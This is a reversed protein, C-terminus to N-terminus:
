RRVHVPFETVSREIDGTENRWQQVAARMEELVPRMEPNGVMNHLAWPDAHLDYLEEAPRRGELMDTLRGVLEPFREEAAMMAPYGPNRWPGEGALDAPMRQPKEPDLNLIYYWRGDTAVRQPFAERLDPGHSNHETFVFRRDPLAGTETLYPWLSIGQVTGPVPLGLADLMTPMLDILSVPADCIRQPRIGPGGIALPMHTGAPYASAKSRIMPMGNDSTYLILTDELRGARELTKLIAMACADAVQVSAYYEQMDIRVEPLDPMYEPIEIRQRDPTRLEGRTFLGKFHASNRFSRHPPEINALIFFPRDGAETLFRDIVQAFREPEHRVPDRAEFPYKWPPSLHFKHTIATYFGEDRLIEILTPISDPIGVRDVKKSERGFEVDPDTLIPTVTNRWHGNSHPWMGTLISARSPASSACSAFASSFYVGYGAFRDLAPTSIAPTGLGSLHASQDDMLIFVINRVASANGEARTAPAALLSPLVGAVVGNRIKNM